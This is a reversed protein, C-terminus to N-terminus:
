NFRNINDINLDYFIFNQFLKKLKKYNENQLNTKLYREIKETIDEIKDKNKSILGYLEFLKNIDILKEYKMIEEKYQNYKMIYEEKQKRIKEEELKIEDKETFISVKEEIDSNEDESNYEINKNINFTTSQTMILEESEKKYEFSLKNKENNEQYFYIKNGVQEENEKKM